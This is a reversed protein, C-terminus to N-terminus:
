SGGFKSIGLAYRQDITTSNDKDHCPGKIFYAESYFAQVTNAEQLTLNPVDLVQDGELNKLKKDVKKLIGNLEPM